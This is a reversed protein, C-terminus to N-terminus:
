SPARNLFYWRLILFIVSYVPFRKFRCRSPYEAGTFYQQPCYERVARARFRDRQLDYQRAQGDCPLPPEEQCRRRQEPLAEVASWLRAERESRSVIEDFSLEEALDEPFSDFSRHSRLRDICRNRVATYLWPKPNDPKSQWLSLFCEQVVDEADDADELYHLAYLCLPRFHQRFLTEM